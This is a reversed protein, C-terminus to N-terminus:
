RARITTSTAATTTGVVPLPLQSLLRWTFAAFVSEFDRFTQKQTDEETPHIKNGSGAVAGGTM